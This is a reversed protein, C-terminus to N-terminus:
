EAVFRCIAGLQFHDRIVEVTGVMGFGRGRDLDTFCGGCLRTCHEVFGSKPMQYIIAVREM